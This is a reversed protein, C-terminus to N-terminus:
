YRVSITGSSPFYPQPPTNYFLGRGIYAERYESVAVPRPSLAGFGSNPSGADLGPYLAPERGYVPGGFGGAFGGRGHGHRRWGHRRPGHWGYPRAARVRGYGGEPSADALSPASACAM